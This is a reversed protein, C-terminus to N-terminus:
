EASVRVREEIMKGQSQAIPHSNDIVAERTPSDKCTEITSPSLDQTSPENQPLFQQYFFFSFPAPLFPTNWM